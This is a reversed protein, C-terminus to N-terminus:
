AYIAGSPSNEHRALWRLSDKRAFFVRLIEAARKTAAPLTLNLFQLTFLYGVAFFAIILLLVGIGSSIIATSFVKLSSIHFDAGAFANPPCLAHKLTESICPISGEVHAATSLSSFLTLTVLAFLITLGIGKAM